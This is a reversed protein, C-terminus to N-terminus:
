AGALIQYARWTAEVPAITGESTQDIEVIASSGLPTYTRLLSRGQEDFGGMDSLNSRTIASGAAAQRLVDDNLAGNSGLDDDRDTSFWLEGDESWIRLRVVRPDSLITRGIAERLSTLEPAAIPGQLDSAELRPRLVQDVAAVARRESALREADVADGGKAITFVLALIAAVMLCAWVYKSAADRTFRQVPGM